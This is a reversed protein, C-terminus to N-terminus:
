VLGAEAMEKLKGVLMNVFNQLPSKVMMAMMPNVEAQVTLFTETELNNVQSFKWLLELPVPTKGSAAIRIHSFQQKEVIRLVIDAMGQITFSCEVETSKWNAIQSPIIKGFNNFNSLFTYLAEAQGKILLKESEITTM